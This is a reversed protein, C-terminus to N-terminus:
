IIVNEYSWLEIICKYKFHDCKLFITYTYTAINQGVYLAPYQRGNGTSSEWLQWAQADILAIAIVAHM